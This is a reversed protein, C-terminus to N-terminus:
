RTPNVTAGAIRPLSVARGGLVGRLDEGSGLHVTGHAAARGFVRLTARGIGLTGSIRVGPIYSYGHFVISRGLDIAWGARLGGTRLFGGAPATGRELSTDLLLSIERNCDRVTLAVAKLTRKAKGAADLPGALQSLGTPALPVPRESSPVPQRSCPRIAQDAFFAELAEHACPGPDSGLVSHGVDPVVLLHADPIRAALARADATPTRLDDGGSLILTPVNPLPADDTEPAASAFPWNACAPMDSEQLVDEPTFPGLSGPHLAQLAARAEELRERPTSPRKWPFSQEECTTAYYLPADIEQPSGEALSEARDVLRALAAPDRHLASHVAAPFEARLVPELDGEVLTELLAASTIRVGRRTGRADTMRAEVDHGHMGRILRRLDGVPNHTIHRCAGQSCLQRLIRPVSAITSRLMQDPGDPLVVSDLVLSQVQEPHDQAFQLAVKTGYSTGYLILKEYGGAERIAELDAVSDATTYFARDPGLQEACREVLTGEPTGPLPHSFAPCSLAGSSGTGRQDFVILDHTSLVPGLMEVFDSAFGDAAQGPGGALAVLAVRGDGIPARHRRLALTITGPMAGGPDLPVKLQGCAFDTTERCPRWSIQSAAGAPSGLVLGAALLGLLAGGVFSSVRRM